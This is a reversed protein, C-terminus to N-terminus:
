TGIKKLPALVEIHHCYNRKEHLARQSIRHKIGNFRGVPRKEERLLIVVAFGFLWWWAEPLLPKPSSLV